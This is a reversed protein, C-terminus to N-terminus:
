AGNTFCTKSKHLSHSASRYFRNNKPANTENTSYAYFLFLLGYLSGRLNEFATRVSGGKFKCISANVAMKFTKLITNHLLHSAHM